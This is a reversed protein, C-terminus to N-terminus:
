LLTSTSVVLFSLEYGFPIAVSCFNLSKAVCHPTCCLGVKLGLVLGSIRIGLGLVVRRVRRPSVRFRGGRRCPCTDINSNSFFSFSEIRLFESFSRNTDDGGLSSSACACVRAVEGINPFMPMKRDSLQFTPGPKFLGTQVPKRHLDRSFLFAQRGISRVIESCYYYDEKKKWRIMVQIKKINKTGNLIHFSIFTKSEIKTRLYLENIM